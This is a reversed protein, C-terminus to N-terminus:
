HTTKCSEKQLQNKFDTITKSAKIVPSIKNWEEIGKYITTMEFQQTKHVPPKLIGQEAIRKSTAKHQHLIKTQNEPGLGNM